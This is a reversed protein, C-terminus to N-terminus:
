DVSNLIQIPNEELVDETTGIAGMPFFGICRSPLKQDLQQAQGAPYVGGPYQFGASDPCKLKYFMRKEFVVGGIGVGGSPFRGSGALTSTVLDCYGVIFVNRTFKAFPVLWNPAASINKIRLKSYDIIMDQPGQLVYTHSQGPQLIVTECQVKWFQNFQPSDTPVSYLTTQTNGFPNGGNANAVLLGTAWDAVADNPAPDTPTGRPQAVYIKMTYTRQSMNKMELQMSSNLVHDKRVWVNEWDLDAFTPNEVAVADNFMVDAADVYELPAFVNAFDIVAQSTQSAPPAMRAYTVKLYKGKLDEKELAKQVKRAFKKSVIVRKKKKRAIGKVKRTRVAAANSGIKRYNSNGISRPTHHLFGVSRNRSTGANWEIRRRKSDDKNPAPPMSNGSEKAFHYGAAAGKIAGRVNNHIYGLAAGSAIGSVERITVM